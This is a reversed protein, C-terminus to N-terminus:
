RMCSRLIGMGITVADAARLITPTLACILDTKQLIYKKETESLDAEPGVLCTITQQKKTQLEAIIASCSRGNTDFFVINQYPQSLAEVFTKTSALHPIAFQKAQECAATMIRQMREYEKSSLWNKHIKETILPQIITAGMAALTYIAQEFYAKELLPLLWSIEPQLAKIKKQDLITMTIHTHSIEQIICTYQMNSDFLVCSEQPKLRVVSGIRKIILQDTLIINKQDQIETLYPCYFAFEHKM